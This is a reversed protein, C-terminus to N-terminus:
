CKQRHQLETSNARKDQLTQLVKRKPSGQLFRNLMSDHKRVYQESHRKHPSRCLYTNTLDMEENPSLTDINLDSAVRRTSEIRKRWIVKKNTPSVRINKEKLFLKSCESGPITFDIAQKGGSDRKDMDARNKLLLRCTDFMNSKAAIMLPTLKDRNQADIDCGKDLLKQLLSVNEDNEKRYCFWHLVNNEGDTLIATVLAGSQELLDYM